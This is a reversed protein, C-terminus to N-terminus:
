YLDEAYREGRIKRGMKNNFERKYDETIPDKYEKKDEEPEKTKPKKEEKKVENGADRKEEKQAEKIDEEKDEVEEKSGEKVNNANNFLVNSISDLDIKEEAMKVM